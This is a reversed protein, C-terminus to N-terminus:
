TRLVALLLELTQERSLYKILDMTDPAERQIDSRHKAFFAMSIRRTAATGQTVAWVLAEVCNSIALSRDFERICHEYLDEIRWMDATMLVERAVEIGYSRGLVKPSNFSLGDVDLSSPMEATYIFQRIVRFADASVHEIVFDEPVHPNGERFAVLSALYACRSSVIGRHAPFREAGVVFVVDGAPDDLLTGFHELALLCADVSSNNLLISHDVKYLCVPPLLGADVIRITDVRNNETVLLRGRCDLALKSPDKFRAESSLGDVRQTSAPGAHNEGGALTTVCVGHLEIAGIVCVGPLEIARIRNNGTDAVVIKGSGDVVVGTPSSFRANVLVDDIFGPHGDGAITSVIGQMSVIRIAHNGTDSVILRKNKLDLALGSPFCFRAYRGAGDRFGPEICGALTSVVGKTTLLRLAHNGTDLIALDGGELLVACTPGDFLAQDEELRDVALGDAFGPDEAGAFTRVPKSCSGAIENVVLRLANNKTDVVV